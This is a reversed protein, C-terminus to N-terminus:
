AAGEAEAIFREVWRIWARPDDAQRANGYRFLAEGRVLKTWSWALPVEFGHADLWDWSRLLDLQAVKPPLVALLKVLVWNRGFEDTKLLTRVIEPPLRYPEVRPRPPLPPEVRKPLIDPWTLRLASLVDDSDCGAFCYILPSGDGAEAISLSPNRDGHKHNATPCSASWRAPGRRRVRELRSLLRDVGPTDTHALSAGNVSQM